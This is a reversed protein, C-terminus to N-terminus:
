GRGGLRPLSAHGTVLALLWLVLLVVMAVVIVQQFPAPMPIYTVVLYGLFGLLAVLLLAVVITVLDM